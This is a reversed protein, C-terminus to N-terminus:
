YCIGDANWATCFDDDIPNANAAPAVGLAVGAIAATAVGAFLLPRM